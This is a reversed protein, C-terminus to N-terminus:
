SNAPSTEIFQTPATTNSADAPAAVRANPSIVNTM